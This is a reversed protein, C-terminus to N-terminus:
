CYQRCIAKGANRVQKKDTKPTKHITTPRYTDIVRQGAYLEKLQKKSMRKKRIELAQKEIKTRENKM